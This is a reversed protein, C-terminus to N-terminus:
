GHHHSRSPAPGDLTAIYDRDCESCSCISDEPCCDSTPTSTKPTPGALTALYEQECKAYDMDFVKPAEKTKAKQEDEASLMETLLSSYNNIKEADRLASGKHNLRCGYKLQCGLLYGKFQEKTLKAKIIKITEIGGADYYTSKPDISM